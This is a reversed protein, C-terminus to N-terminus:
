NATKEVPEPGQLKEAEPAKHKQLHWAAAFLVFLLLSASITGIVSRVAFVETWERPHLQANIHGYFVGVSSALAGGAGFLLARDRLNVAPVVTRDCVPSRRIWRSTAVFVILLGVLSSLHQLLIFWPLKPLFPTGRRLEVFHRVFIGNMHTWGDWLIHTVAGLLLSVVIWLFQKPPLFRFDANAPMRRRIADPMSALAPSRLFKYYIYLAILGAPLCFLFLGPFTHGFRDEDTLLLFYLFDPAM